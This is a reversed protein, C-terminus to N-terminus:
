NKRNEINDLNLHETLKYKESPNYSMLSKVRDLRENIVKAGLTKKIDPKELDHWEVLYSTKDADEMIFKSGEFKYMDPVKSLMHNESIFRLKKFRIKDINKSEGYMTKASYSNKDYHQSVLGQFKMDKKIKNSEKAHKKFYDSIGYDANGFEDNKHNKKALASTYGEAQAQLRDYDPENDYRIDSMGQNEEPTVPGTKKDDGDKIGKYVSKVEKEIDSYAKGNIDKNKDNGVVPKFENKENIFKRLDGVRFTRERNRM